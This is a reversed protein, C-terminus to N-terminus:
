EASWTFLTTVTSSFNANDLTRVQYIFYSNRVVTVRGFVPSSGVYGQDLSPNITPLYGPPFPTEFDVRIDMYSVSTDTTFSTTGRKEALFISDINALSVSDATMISDRSNFSRFNKAGSVSSVLFGVSSSNTAIKVKAGKLDIDLTEDAIFNTNRTRITVGRVAQPAHIDLNSLNLVGGRMNDVESTGAGGFNVVGRSTSVPHNSIIKAGSLDHDFAKIESFHVAVGDKPAYIIGEIKNSAGGLIAGGYITGRFSLDEVNGHAEWTQVDGSGNGKVTGSTRIDRNVVAGIVDRGGHTIGHRSASFYGDARIHQCNSVLLGYDGGLGSLKEQIAKAKIDVNYCQNLELAAYSGNKAICAINDSTFDTIRHFKAAYFAGQKGQIIEIDGFINITGMNMKYAGINTNTTPAYSDLCGNDLLVETDSVVSSVKVFEGKRYYARASSWSFDTNDYLCVIDDVELGHASSFALTIDGKNVDSMLSPLSTYNEGENDITIVTDGNAGVFGTGDFTVKGLCDITQGHRFQVPETIKYNGGPIVLHDYQSSLNNLATTDDTIGDRVAGQLPPPPYMVNIGQSEINSRTEEMQSSLRSDVENIPTADLQAFESWYDGQFIFTKGTDRVFVRDNESPDPYTTEIASFTDVPLLYKGLTYQRAAAADSMAIDSKENAQGATTNAENSKAMAQDATQKMKYTEYFNQNLANRNNRDWLTGIVKRTM